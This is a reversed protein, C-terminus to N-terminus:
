FIRRCNPLQQKLWVRDEDNIKIKNDYITLERLNVLGLLASIDSINNSCLCLRTLDVLGALASIDSINNSELDLDTLNVLGALASIDSINNSNLNLETLNVLGALPSIDSINNNYMILSTLNVLGKLPTIDKVSTESLDLYTMRGLGSLPTIDNISDCRGLELKTLNKFEALLEIDDLFAHNLGLCTLNKLGSLPTIDEIVSDNLNLKTLNTLESIPTIDYMSNFSLNLEKLNTLESIPSIDYYNYCMNYSLGLYTLNKFGAIQKINNEIRNDCLGLETLDTLEQFISIDPIELGCIQLRRLRSLRLIANFDEESLKGKVDVVADYDKIDDFGCDDRLVSRTKDKPKILLCKTSSIDLETGAITVTGMSGVEPKNEGFEGSSVFPQDPQLIGDIIDRLRPDGTVELGRFMTEAAKRNSNMGIYAATLGLYAEANKPEADIVREYEAAAREFNNESLQQGALRIGEEANYPIVRTGCRACFRANEPLVAGCNGCFM